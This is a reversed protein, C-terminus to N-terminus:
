FRWAATFAWRGDASQAAFARRGPREVAFRSVTLQVRRLALSLGAHGAWYSAPFLDSLDYYGVGATLALRRTLPQRWAGEYSCERGQRVADQTLSYRTVNPACAFAFSARDAFALRASIEDHDYASHQADGSYAYHTYSAAATWQSSLIWTRGLYLNIELDAAHDPPPNATSAWVGGFWGRATNLHLDGQLAPDHRSQTMGQFIYDTTAVVSGQLPPAASVRENLAGAAMLLAFAVRRKM